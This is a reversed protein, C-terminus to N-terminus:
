GVLRLRPILGVDAMVTLADKEEESFKVPQGFEPDAMFSMLCDGCAEPGAGCSDCDIVYSKMGSLRVGGESM